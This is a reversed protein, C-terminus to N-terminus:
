FLKKFVKKSFDPCGPIKAQKNKKVITKTEHYLFSNSNNFENKNIFNSRKNQEFSDIDNVIIVDKLSTNNRYKEKEQAITVNSNTVGTSEYTIVIGHFFTRAEKDSKCETQLLLYWKIDSKNLEPDMKFIAKLRNALLENYNTIWDKKKRPYKTYVISVSKVKKGVKINTWGEPKKITYAAYGNELILKHITSIEKFRSIENYGFIEEYQKIFMSPTELIESTFIPASYKQSFSYLNLLFLVILSFIKM